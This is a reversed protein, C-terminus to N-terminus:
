CFVAYSIEAQRTPESIHILSLNSTVDLFLGAVTGQLNTTISSEEFTISEGIVFKAQTLRLIEVTTANTQGELIAVAGSTAGKIKEGLVTTTNLSLGSVFVLKDLIPDALNVSEFVGVVNFVDPTNLSIEKDQVRLGYGTAATLGNTSIGTQSSKNIVISNSRSANKTKQSIIDKELTVNVVKAGNVLNNFTISQNNAGLVVQSAELTQHTTDSSTKKSISYRDADFPVFSASTVDTLDSVSVTLTNSSATKEVQSKIFLKSQALSVDSVNKKQLEAYLGANNQFIQPVGKRIPAGDTAIAAASVGTVATAAALTVTKLDASIATVRSFSPDAGNPINSILIDNVKLSGFTKGACTIDSGTKNIRDAPSLEKIPVQKLVLDGSFDAGSIFTDEQHVSM